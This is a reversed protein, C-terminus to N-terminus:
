KGAPALVIVAIVIAMFVMCSGSGMAGGGGTRLSTCFPVNPYHPLIAAIHPLRLLAFRWTCILATGEYLVAIVIAMFVMCSGSGM